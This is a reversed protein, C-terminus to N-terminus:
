RDSPANTAATATAAEDMCEEAELLLQMLIVGVICLDMFMQHPVAECISDLYVSLM